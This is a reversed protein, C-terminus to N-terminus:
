SKNKKNPIFDTMAIVGFIIAIVSILSNVLFDNVTSSKFLTEYLVGVILRIVVCGILSGLAVKALKNIFKQFKSDPKDVRSFITVFIYTVFIIGILICILYNPDIMILTYLM